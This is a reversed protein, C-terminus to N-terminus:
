ANPAVPKIVDIVYRAHTYLHGFTAHVLLNAAAWREFTQPLTPFELSTLRPAQDAAEVALKAAELAITLAELFHRVHTDREGPSLVSFGTRWIAEDTPDTM